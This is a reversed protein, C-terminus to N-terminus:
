KLEKLQKRAQYGRFTSQIKIVENTKQTAFGITEIENEKSDKICTCSNGM